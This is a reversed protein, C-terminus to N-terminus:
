VYLFLVTYCVSMHGGGLILSEYKAMGGTDIDVEWSNRKPFIISCVGSM